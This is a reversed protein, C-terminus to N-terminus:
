TDSEGVFGKELALSDTNIRVLPYEEKWVFNIVLPLSKRERETDRYIYVYVCIEYIRHLNQSWKIEQKESQMYICM